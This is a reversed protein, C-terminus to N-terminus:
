RRGARRRGTRAPSPTRRYRRSVQPTVSAQRRELELEAIREQHSEDLRDIARHLQHADPSLDAEAYPTVDTELLESLEGPM